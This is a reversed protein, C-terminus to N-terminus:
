AHLRRGEPDFACPAVITAQRVVGLHQVDITEGHRAAGREILALAVPRGLTPSQYSSTVFGISRLRGDRKEVGHAGIALPAGGDRVALGVLQNRDASNGAETFLSRKGVFEGARKTRPGAVGLDHPMTTGDTDKGIVIYGKEARLIMLSELGLLVADFARGEQRMRAWLAEARDARISIEYSRDGTFSVRAIRVEDGAFRGAAIAMHPLSADDLAAGLDLAEVVQRANPGSVTLTAYQATANHIYVADRGFRDQRWEELRAHVAAVHSSSCSVIFRHEDLRVLVGDDFVVGNESLMFGYRCHGPKLTSMTNYYIFDVFEAARPGVVEIKGLTSGDFLAVSQRARRAEDQISAGAEGGGYYAPRLWGGYEQFVAGAARHNAELPLRRVPAHMSGRRSGALSAFPVPTFPPRYTTTGIEPIGRGTIDALLALGNLNSTKGQDTAMGLTTYRKLHEVSVFNERAALEVDKATVDSQYDIWVRGKAKPKPWLSVVGLTAEAGTGRPAPSSSGFDAPAAAGSALTESLSVTGAVAGAVGTGEIAEGPIFAALQDSWALKGKAQSFLHVTPTWGGSVLVCDVGLTTGDDLLIGQVAKHGRAAVVTRGALVRIGTKAQAGGDRRCDVVTVSAGAEALASAPEYASDNNTAVVIERGVLVGHRRLYSLAADASLIGPLDNNAFPVPREIAGTALVIRRPRVRWLTDPRGDAHRQNLAVLNHDYLGFATTDSLVLQGAGKLKAVTAEVWARGEVGDVEGARHRLSGGPHAGDDALVVSHGAAAASAAAALGAPGAGVVLVDCHHNIQDSVQRPKWDSDVIGLGAMARIRPEFLHWDPWMFTKYYFAAPLFRAFRDLVANRDNEATPSANVSTVRIGDTAQVTTARANPVRGAASEVDVLANPEEVGSGWIGRPRHYKFSRGVVAQGSALLASAITDGAFGEVRRGDFTFSLPRDRDIDSGGTTLRSASM